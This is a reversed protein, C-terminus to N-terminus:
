WPDSEWKKGDLFNRAENLTLYSPLYLQKKVAEELMDDPLQPEFFPHSEESSDSYIHMIVASADNKNMGDPIPINRKKFVNAQNETIPYDDLIFEYPPDIGPVTDPYLGWSGVYVNTVTKRRKTEPNTGKVKYRLIRKTPVYGTYAPTSPRVYDPSYRPIKEVWSSITVTYNEEIDTSKKKESKSPAKKKSKSKKKGFILSLLTM